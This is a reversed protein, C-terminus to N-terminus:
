LGHFGGQRYGTTFQILHCPAPRLGQVGAGRHINCPRSKCGFSPQLGRVSGAQNGETVGSTQRERARHIRFGMGRHTRTLRPSERPAAPSLVRLRAGRNGTHKGATHHQRYIDRGFALPLITRYPNYSLTPQRFHGGGPIFQRLVGDGGRSHRHQLGHQHTM